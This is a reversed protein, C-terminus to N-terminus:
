FRFVQNLRWSEPFEQKNELILVIKLHGFLPDLEWKDFSDSKSIVPVLDYFKEGFGSTVPNKTEILAIEKIAEDYMEKM